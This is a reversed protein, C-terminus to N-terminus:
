LLRRVRDWTGRTKGKRDIGCREGERERKKVGTEKQNVRCWDCGERGEGGGGKERIVIRAIVVNTSRGKSKKQQRKV